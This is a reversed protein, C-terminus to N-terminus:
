RVEFEMTIIEDSRTPHITVGLRIKCNEVVEATNNTEDCVVAYDLIAKRDKLDKMLSVANEAVLGRTVKDNYDGATYLLATELCGKVYLVLRRVGVKDLLETKAHLSAEGFAEESTGDLGLIPTSAVTASLIKIFSRRGINM